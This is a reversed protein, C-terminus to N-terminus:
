AGDETEEGKGASEGLEVRGDTRADSGVKALFADWEDKKMGYTEKGTEPFTRAKVHSNYDGVARRSEQGVNGFQRVFRPQQYPTKGDAVPDPAYVGLIDTIVLVQGSTGSGAGIGITPITLRETIYTALPHPIAELLVMTAGAAEMALAENLLREATEVTKGQVLYGSTSTARQPRLGLHPMVAIGYSSLKRVLPIIEEGGEIKVGDIGGEKIMRIVNETGKEISSEFTGFPLDAFVFPTKAGRTVAKCHHIMEDLTLNHTEEHGLAVQSLSDGVLTVDVGSSESLLATPYDYATLVSIPINAARLRHLEQITVKRRPVVDGGGNTKERPRVSMYRKQAFANASQLGVRGTSWTSFKRRGIDKANTTSSARLKPGAERTNEFGMIDAFEVRMKDWLEKEQPSLASTDVDPEEITKGDRDLRRTRTPEGPASTVSITEGRMSADTMWPPASDANIKLDLDQGDDEAVDEEWSKFVLEPPIEPSDTTSSKTTGAVEATNDSELHRGEGDATDSLSADATAARAAKGKPMAEGMQRLWGPKDETTREQVGRPTTFSGDVPDFDAPNLVKEKKGHRKDKELRNKKAKVDKNFSDNKGKPSLDRIAVGLTALDDPIDKM